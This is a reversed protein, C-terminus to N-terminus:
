QAAQRLAVAAAFPALTLAVILLGALVTLPPAISLGTLGAEVAATGFILVPIYLPLVLLSLLVGGRRAGLVLSAGVAGLLSLVPTGLALAAILPAYGAVPLNLTPALLPAVIILPIGTTMWHALVKALVVLSLPQGCMILQDLTGDEFDSIFVAELSLLAALLATVWLVGGAIRALVGAEPGVGFPFLVAAIAFFGVATLSDGRQRVALRLDRALVAGLIKMASM